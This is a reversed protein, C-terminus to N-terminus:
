PQAGVGGTGGGGGGRELGQGGGQARGGGAGGGARGGVGFREGEEFARQCSWTRGGVRQIRGM